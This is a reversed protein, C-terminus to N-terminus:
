NGGELTKLYSKLEAVGKLNKLHIFFYPPAVDAYALRMQAQRLKDQHNDLGAPIMVVGCVPLRFSLSFHPPYICRKESLNTVFLVGYAHQAAAILHQYMWPCALYAGPTRLTQNDYVVHARRHMVEDADNLLRALEFKGTHPAGVLMIKKKM